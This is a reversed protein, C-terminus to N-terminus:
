LNFAAVSDPWVPEFSAPMIREFLDRLRRYMEASAITGLVRFYFNYTGDESVGPVWSPFSSAQMKGAMGAGAMFEDDLVAAVVSIGPYAIQIQENLYAVSQGGILTQMQRVRAQRDELPLTPDDAIGLQDHWQALTDIATSPHSELLVDTMFARWRDVSAGLAVVLARLDPGVRWSPPLLSLLARTMLGM